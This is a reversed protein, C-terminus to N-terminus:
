TTDTLFMTTESAQLAEHYEKKRNLCQRSRGGAAAVGSGTLLRMVDARFVIERSSNRRSVGFCFGGSKPPKQKPAEFLVRVQSVM